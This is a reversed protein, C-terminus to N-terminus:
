VPTSSPTAAPPQPESSSPEPAIWTDLCSGFREAYQDPPVCSIGAMETPYRVKKVLNEVSKAASWSTLIDIIGIYYVEPEGEEGPSSPAGRGEIGGDALAPWPRQPARAGAGTGAGGNVAGAAGASASGPPSSRLPLVQDPNPSPKPHPSPSPNPNPSPNRSPNPNPSPSPNPNPSPSPSRNPHPLVQAQPKTASWQEPSAATTAAAAMEAAAAPSPSSPSPPGGQPTGGATRRPFHIGFLLSYDMTQVKQLFALDARLQQMLPARSPGLNFQRKLDLDKRLADSKTSLAKAGVTRGLTSGKLDYREHITRDTSFVNAFVVFHM